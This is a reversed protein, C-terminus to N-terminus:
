CMFVFCVPRSSIHLTPDRVSESQYFDDLWPVLSLVVFVRQEPSVCGVLGGM